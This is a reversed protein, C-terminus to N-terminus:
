AAREERSASGPEDAGDWCVVTVGGFRLTSEDIPEETREVLARRLETAAGQLAAELQQGLVERAARDEAVSLAVRSVTAAMAKWLATLESPLAGAHARLDLRLLGGCRRWPTIAPMDDSLAAGAQLVLESACQELASALQGQELLGARWRQAVADRAGILEAGLRERAATWNM